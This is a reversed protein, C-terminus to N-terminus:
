KKEKELENLLKLARDLLAEADKHQEQKMRPEFEQMTEAITTPDQGENQWRQM